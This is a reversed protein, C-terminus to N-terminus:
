DTLEGLTVEVTRAEGDRVVTLTAESGGGVARVQATLDTANTIPLGDFGTVIDGPRLGAEAAPGGETVEDIYAGTTTAGEISAAPAVMAGLLGHSAEGTEILEDTVRKVIDSPISFGVGISGSESSSGATAIAVNIGILKGESDVLAGGSNGPNIAADTQLVSISITSTPQQPEGQGFDFYFPGEQGEEPAQQSGDEPTEPAASSAIQISRNLASVIGNTVTNSLGLPAGVAIAADGVNLDASDAFEIPTLGEADVLKIVALDYLPDLGVIEADYVRGDATTVSLAPDSTAGDLTVVHTNTVVYGDESLIVGSGTGGASDGASASITVTSPVVKAAIGTIQNVNETDNVTVSVPGSSAVTQSDGWISVGAYAGGVGAAGGVLAAAVMLAAVKGAGIGPKGASSSQEGGLPQTPQTPQTASPAQPGQAAYPYRPAAYGQPPAGYPRGPAQGYPAQAGPHQPAGPHPPQAPYPPTSAAPQSAAAAAPQSPAAPREPVVQEDREPATNDEPRIGQNESM